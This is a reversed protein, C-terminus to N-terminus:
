KPTSSTSSMRNGLATLRSKKRAANNKHLIGKSATKDIMSYALQLEKQVKEVDKTALAEEVKKIHTKVRSIAARNRLRRRLNQKHRKDASTIAM